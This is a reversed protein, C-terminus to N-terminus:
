DVEVDVLIDMMKCSTDMMVPVTSPDPLIPVSISVTKQEMQVSM